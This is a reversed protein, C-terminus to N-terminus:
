DTAVSNGALFASNSQVSHDDNSNDSSAVSIMGPNPKPAPTVHAKQMNQLCQNRMEEACFNVQKHCGWQNCKCCWIWHLNNKMAYLSGNTASTYKWKMFDGLTLFDKQHGFQVASKYNGTCTVFPHREQSYGRGGTHSRPECPHTSTHEAKM